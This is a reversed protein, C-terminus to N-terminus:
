VSLECALSPSLMIELAALTPAGAACREECSRVSQGDQCNALYMFNSWFPLTRASYMQISPLLPSRLLVLTLVLVEGAGVCKKMGWM